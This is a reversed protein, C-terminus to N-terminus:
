CAMCMYESIPIENSLVKKEKYKDKFQEVVKKIYDISFPMPLVNNNMDALILAVTNGKNNTAGFYLGDEMRTYTRFDKLGNELIIKSFIEFVEVQNQFYYVNKLNTWTEECLLIKYSKYKEEMLRIKKNDSLFEFKM